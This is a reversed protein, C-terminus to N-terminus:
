PDKAIRMGVNVDHYEAREEVWRYATRMDAGEDVWSSGRYVPARPAEVGPLPRARVDLGAYTPTPSSVWEYVNGAIDLVGYPSAGAPFSGVHAAFENKDRDAGFGYVNARIRDDLDFPDEGWPHRRGDIGRGAKEWEVETPLRAGLRKACAVSEEYSIHAAPQAAVTNLGLKRGLPDRVCAGPVEIWNAIGEEIYVKSTGQREAATRFPPSMAEFAGVFAAITTETRAIFFAPVFIFRAPKEEASFHRSGLLAPGEPVYRMGPPVDAPGIPLAVTQDEGPALLVPCRISAHRRDAPSAGRLAIELVVEGPPLDADDLPLPLDAKGELPLLGVDLTEPDVPYISVVADGRAVSVRLRARGLAERVQPADEATLGGAAAAVYGEAVAHNGRATAFRALALLRRAELREASATDRAEVLRDHARKFLPEARRALDDAARRESKRGEEISRWRALATGSPPEPVGAAALRDQAELESAPPHAFYSALEGGHLTAARRAWLPREARKYARLAEETAAEAERAIRRGDELVIRRNEEAQSRLREDEVRSLVFVLALVLALAGVTVGVAIRERWAWKWARRLPGEPYAAVPEHELFAHIDDSLAAADKYRGEPRPALAKVCIAELERAIRADLERPRLYLCLRVKLIVDEDPGCHFPPRGTLMHYLVGGLAFIDVSPGIKTPDGAAQEPAMYAPTGVITGHVTEVAGSSPFRGSARPSDPAPVPLPLTGTGPPVPGTPARPPAPGSPPRSPPADLRRAAKALGWDMVQVEGYRCIMINQPKLDRHVFGKAHAYAVAQCIEAFIELLRFLRFERATEPDGARVEQVIKALTRGEVLKMTFYAHGLADIGFDYVPIIGPHQLGAMARAEAVFRAVCGEDHGIDELLVKLAVERELDRDYVRYVAGMGGKGLEGKLEYREAPPGVLFLGRQTAPPDGPPPAPGTRVHLGSPPPPITPSEHSPADLSAASSPAITPSDHSPSDEPM